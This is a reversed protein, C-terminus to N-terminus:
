EPTAEVKKEAKKDFISGVGKVVKGPLGLTRKFIGLVTNSVSDIPVPTVQPASSTGEIKFQATLLAKEEGGLVWGALPISTVIKDVTRLPMVGLTYDLSQDVLGQSGVLSLNMAESDIRLDETHMRGEAIRFSGEMLNFPMGEKDMDPLNGTFLQSVNLLSFVKALGNFKRLTGDRIRLHIGGKATPWFRGAAPNGQLYFDSTLDGHILGRTNFFDQHLVTADIGELHGSVMLPAQTQQPDIAIRARGHGADSAFTLPAITLLQDRVRLRARANSFSLKGLTGRRVSIAIDLPEVLPKRQEPPRRQPGNILKLVALIAARKSDITLEVRPKKFNSVTGTVTATTTEELRAKVPAFRLENANIELRGNLDHLLMGSNPFILDQARIVTGRMDLSLQPNSWDRLRGDLQFASEGLSAQLQRFHLGQRNIDVQGSTNRLRALPPPLKAGVGELQAQAQFDEAGQQLRFKIRGAAELQQLIPSMKAWRKLEVPDCILQFPIRGPGPQLRGRAVITQGNLQLAIQEASIQDASLQGRVTLKAPAAAAKQLLKGFALRAPGLDTQLAFGPATLAGSLELSGSITGAASWDAPLKLLKSYDEIRPQFNITLNLEPQALPNQIGGSFTLPQGAATLQGHAVSLLQDALTLNASFDEIPAFPPADWTLKGLAIEATVRPLGTPAQGANWRKDWSILFRELTGHELKDAYPSRWARLLESGFEVAEAELRGALHNEDAGHAFSLNGSLPIGLLTGSVDTISEQQPSSVWNGALSLLPEARDTGVVNASLATGTAPTGSLTLSLDLRKAPGLGAWQPLKATNLQSINLQMEQPEQRWDQLDTSALIRTELYLDAQQQPLTGSLTLRGSQQAQWGRLVANLSSIQLREHPQGADEQLFRVDGEHVTLLKIGLANPLRQPFDKIPAGLAPVPLNFRPRDIRVRAFLIERKLLPRLKLTAAIRPIDALPTPGNGIRLDELLLALGQNYTLSSHGISVEQNLASALQKELSQRYDDLELQSLLVILVTIIVATFILLLYFSRAILRFAPFNM